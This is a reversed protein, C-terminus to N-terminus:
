GAEAAKTKAGAASKKADRRRDRRICFGPQSRATSLGCYGSTGPCAACVTFAELLMRPEPHGRLIDRLIDYLQLLCLRVYPGKWKGARGLAVQGRYGPPAGRAHVTVVDLFAGYLWGVVKVPDEGWSGLRELVRLAGGADRAFLRDMYENLEYERSRAALRRVDDETVIDGEDLATALKDLESRLTDTDDGALVLLLRMAGPELTLGLAKARQQVMAQLEEGAPQRVDVVSKALGAGTVLRVTDKEHEGTVVACCTDPLRGLGELLEKLSEGHLRGANRVVVLRRKSAVPAQRIHQLLIPVPLEDAYVSQFDFGELGPGVLAAKLASIVADVAAADGGLLVYVPEFRGAKVQALVQAANRPSGGSQRPM